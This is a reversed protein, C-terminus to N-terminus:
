GSKDRGHRGASAAPGSLVNGNDKAGSCRPADTGADGVPGEPGVTGGAAIADTHVVGDPKGGAAELDRLVCLESPEVEGDIMVQRRKEVLVLSHEDLGFGHRRRLAGVDGVLNTRM